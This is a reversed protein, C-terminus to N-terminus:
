LETENIEQFSDSSDRKVWKPVTTQNAYRRSSRIFFVLCIMLLIFMSLSIFVAFPNSSEPTVAESILVEFSIENTAGDNDEVILRLNYTGPEPFDSSQLTTTGTVFTEGDLYWTYLLDLDDNSTDSSKSSNLEWTDGDILTVVSGETVVFSDLELQLVPAINYVEFELTSRTLWGASDRVSLDVTWIGPLDPQLSILTDSIKEHSQVARRSGDPLILNWTLVNDRGSYGDSVSASFSIASNEEISIQSLTLATESDSISIEDVDCTLTVNPINQDILLTFYEKNSTRLLSDVVVISFMWYGDSLNLNDREFILSLERGVQLSDYDNFVIMDDLCFLNAASCIELHIFSDNSIHSPIILPVKMVIDESTLMYLPTNLDHGVLRFPLIYPQHNTSGLYVIRHVSPPHNSIKDLILFGCTCNYMTVNLEISWNWEGESVATVNSLTGSDLEDDWGNALNVLFWKSHALPYNSSGNFSMTENFVLGNDQFITLDQSDTNPQATTFTSQFPPLILVM